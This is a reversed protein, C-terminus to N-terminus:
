ITFALVVAHNNLDHPLVCMARNPKTHIHGHRFDTVHIYVSAGLIAWTSCLVLMKVTTKCFIYVHTAVWVLFLIPAIETWVMDLQTSVYLTPVGYLYM